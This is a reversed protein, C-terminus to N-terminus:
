HRGKHPEGIGVPVGLHMITDRVAARYRDLKLKGVVLAGIDKGVGDLPEDCPCGLLQELEQASLQRIRGRAAGVRVRNRAKEGAM